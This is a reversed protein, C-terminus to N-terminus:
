GSHGFFIYLHWGESVWQVAQLREAWDVKLREVWPQRGEPYVRMRRPVKYPRVVRPPPPPLLALVCVRWPPPAGPHGGTGTPRALRAACRPTDLVTGVRGEALTM